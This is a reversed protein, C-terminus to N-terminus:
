QIGLQRSVSDIKTSFYWEENSLSWTDGEHMENNVYEGYINYLQNYLTIFRTYSFLNNDPDILTKLYNDYTERYEDIELIKDVLPHKSNPDYMYANLNNWKYIDATAIGEVNWVPSGDWGGGLINDYDYPLWEAKGNENFYLYYNNGMSRYGDVNGLLVDLAQSRIFRDVEFNSEIYQKFEEGQLKNINDIFDLLDSYNQKDENTKLDYTPRYNTTWDKSGLAIEQDLPMLLAPGYNQWLCKYLNGDNYEKGFRKTLFKKDIPEVFTVIGYDHEVGDIVFTLTAMSAKSTMVDFSNILSYSFIERINTSDAGFNVKFNLESLEAFNRKDRATYEETDESMDFTADFKLKFHFRHMGGQDEPLVRSTNGKTRIGVEEIKVESVGDSYYVDAKRYNGTRMSRDVSSYEIMDNSLGDWEEQTMVIKFKHLKSNDFLSEYRVSEYARDEEGGQSQSTKGQQETQTVQPQAGSDANDADSEKLQKSTIIVSITVVSLLVLVLFVSFLTKRRM